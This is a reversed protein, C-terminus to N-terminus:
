RNHTPTTSQYARGPPGQIKGKETKSKRRNGPCYEMIISYGM